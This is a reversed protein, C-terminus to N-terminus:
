AAILAAAREAIAYVTANTNASVLSPMVSADAVRLGGIGRVRLDTDVVATADTGIRCTSTYHFYPLLSERLYARVSDDDASRVGPGPLAEKGRWSSLAASRGIERAIRLGTTMTGFDADDGLYNPDVLPPVGADASALRVSGRSRPNMASFAITYGSDPGPLTVARYPVSIFLIQVDPTDLAPDTKVLGLAEGMLNDVIGPVPQGASYTVTSMPHDRLGNGVGPLDLAVEVGAQRLQAAPGIGSLLLLQPTGIAGATLVVEETCSASVTTGAKRYEVGTCRDGSVRLRGVRADTVIDLNPRGAVPGLYADAASQRAGDVINGDSWGFGTELGSNIDTARRHGSEVAAEVCAEVLPNSVVVPTVTLPGDVGRVAPDRGPATESRRFFPLLDGFGWGAAGLGPWADYSSRHGRLFNLANISSSGGLCRGRPMPIATGTAAQVVSIDAWDATSGLLSPWARPVAMADLPEGAGAELLLVRANARESLRSALVCGATGAGVVIYDYSSATAEM